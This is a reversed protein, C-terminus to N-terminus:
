LVSTKDSTSLQSFSKSFEDKKLQNQKINAAPPQEAKPQPPEKRLLALEICLEKTESTVKEFMGCFDQISLDPKPSGDPKLRASVQDIIKRFAYVRYYLITLLVHIITSGIFSVISMFLISSFSPINSLHESIKPQLLTMKSALPRAIEVLSDINGVEPGYILAERVDRLLDISATSKTNYNPLDSINPLLTLLHSLPDPLNVNVQVPPIDSCAYLDSRIKIHPGVIQYGCELTIICIKCGKITLASNQTDTMKRKHLTYSDKASTILWVGFGLNEAQERAPLLMEDTDCVKLADIATNFFLTSLCSSDRLYQTAVSEHCIQYSDSGICKSLEYHSLHATEMQNESVALFQSETKWKIARNSDLQPMPIVKAEYVTFATQRSALPIALTMVLGSDITIVDHLLKADYYSIIEEMPIALSLRDKSKSQQAGVAELITYLSDRTVLSMPLMKNLMTPIANFVNMKYTYLASRYSKINTFMLNLLSSLTDFNFNIQQRSFLLQTCDRLAHINQAFVDLQSSIVHWNQNQIEVIEQQIRNIESLESSILFFKEESNTQIQEVYNALYSSFKQLERINEANAKAREQCSGFIGMVGCEKGGVMLGGGFLGAAAVVAAAVPAGRRKRAQTPTITPQLFSATDKKLSNLENLAFASEQNIQTLMWDVNFSSDDSNFNSSYNLPCPISPMQWLANLQQLTDNLAHYVTFNLTPFPVFFDAMIFKEALLIKSIENFIIGKELIASKNGNTSAGQIFTLRFILLFLTPYSFIM